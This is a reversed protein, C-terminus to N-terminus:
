FEHSHTPSSIKLQAARCDCVAEATYLEELCTQSERGPKFDRGSFSLRQNKLETSSNSLLMKFNGQTLEHTFALM